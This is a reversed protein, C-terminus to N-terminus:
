WVEEAARSTIVVDRRIAASEDHDLGDVVPAILARRDTDDDVPHFLQAAAQTSARPQRRPDQGLLVQRSREVQGELDGRLGSSLAVISYSDEGISGRESSSPRSFGAEVSFGGSARRGTERAGPAGM